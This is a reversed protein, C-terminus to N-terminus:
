DKQQSLGRLRVTTQKGGPHSNIDKIVASQRITTPSSPLCSTRFYPLVYWQGCLFLMKAGCPIASFDIPNSRSVARFLSVIPSKWAMLPPSYVISISKRAAYTAVLHTRNLSISDIAALPFLQEPLFTKSHHIIRGITCKDLM